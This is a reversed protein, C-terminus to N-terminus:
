DTFFDDIRGIEQRTDPDTITGDREIYARISRPVPGSM